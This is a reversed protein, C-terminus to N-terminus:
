WGECEDCCDVVTEPWVTSVRSAAVACVIDSNYIFALGGYGQRSKSVEVQMKKRCDQDQKALKRRQLLSFADKNDM